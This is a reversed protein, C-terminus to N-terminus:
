VHGDGNGRVEKLDNYLTYRSVSLRQALVPVSKRIRFFGRQELHAILKLRDERTPTGKMAQFQRLGEEIMTELLANLDPSFSKATPLQRSPALFEDLQRRLDSYPSLDINLCFIGFIKGQEDRLYITSSKLARGDATQAGYNILDEAPTESRLADLGINTMPGGVHRGTVNGEIWIISKEPNATNHLLVECSPGLTQAIASGVIQLIQFVHTPTM